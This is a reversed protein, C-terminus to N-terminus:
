ISLEMTHRYCANEDLFISRRHLTVYMTHFPHRSATYMNGLATGQHLFSEEHGTHVLVSVRPSPDIDLLPLTYVIRRVVAKRGVRAM